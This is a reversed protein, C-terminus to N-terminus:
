LEGTALNISNNAAVSTDEVLTMGSADIVLIKVADLAAICTNLNAFDSDASADITLAATNLGYDSTADCNAATVTRANDYCSLVTTPTSADATCDGAAPNVEVTPTTITGSDVFAQLATDAAAIM